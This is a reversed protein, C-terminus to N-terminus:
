SERRLQRVAELGMNIIWVYGGIWGDMWGDVWTGVREGELRGGTIKRFVVNTISLYSRPNGV